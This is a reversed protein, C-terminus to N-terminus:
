TCSFHLAAAKTTNGKSISTVVCSGYCPSTPPFCALVASDNQMKIAIDRVGACEVSVIDSGNSLEYGEILTCGGSYSPLIDPEVSSIVGGPNYTFAHSARSQGTTHSYVAVDCPGPVKGPPIIASIEHESVVDWNKMEIDCVTINIVDGQSGNCLLEGRITVRIQGFLPSSAPEIYTIIGVILCSSVTCVVLIISM